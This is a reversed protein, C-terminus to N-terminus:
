FEEGSDDSSVWPYVDTHCRDCVVYEYGHQDSCRDHFSMSCNRCEFGAFTYNGCVPSGCNNCEDLSFEFEAHCSLCLESAYFGYLKIGGDKAPSCAIHWATDCGLCTFSPKLYLTLSLTCFKCRWSDDLYDLVIKIVETPFDAPFDAVLASM